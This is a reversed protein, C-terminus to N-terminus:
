EINKKGIKLRRAYLSSAAVTFLVLSITSIPMLIAAILPSLTGTVAFSLGVVNYLLSIIFSIVIIRMSVKAYTLLAPIHKIASADIITDSAPTFANTNESVSMGVNSQMLAGADNLGDGVMMVQYNEDQVQKIFDRKNKPLQNFCIGAKSGFINQLNEKENDNDGSLLALKYSGDNLKSIMDAIGDRYKNNIEFYGMYKNEISLHVCSGQPANADSNGVWQKNGLKIATGNAMGAIGFGSQENVSTVQLFEKQHLSNAVAKSHPHSSQRAISYVLKQYHTSLEKGFYKVHSAGSTTLTGTKDFIIYSIDALQEIVKHSRLYIKSKALIRMMNGFTFPASLALACPCAIVLVATFANIARLRDQQWWVMAAVIAVVITVVIFWKSILHVLKEFKSENNKQMHESWLQTIYGKAMERSVLCEIMGGCNKAGAYLLEGSAHKVANTEGTVFAYDVNAMNSQLIADVPIIEQQRILIRDGVKLTDAAVDKELGNILTTVSIPFYSKYDRSFSLSEFTFDQFWRGILMFFILGSGSDLYGTGTGSLIEYVSRIFIAAIGLAIPADISVQKHKLSRYSQIFFESASYIFVPLSLLLSMYSFFYKLSDDALNGASFYDPFSLMMINGFCFGAVGIRIIRSRNASITQEKRNTDLNIAPEYGVAALQETVQRLTTQREDFVIKLEKCLFNVKSEVIGKNLRRFNELLWICSSCHMAPIFFTLYVLSGNRYQVLKEAAWKEDLYRFRRDDRLATKIGPQKQYEYYSCLNNERLVEYVLICGNCCFTKEDATIADDQCIAGCHFCLEQEVVKPM